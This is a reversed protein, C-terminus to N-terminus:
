QTPQLQEALRSRLRDGLLRFVTQIDAFTTNPHNNYGQLRHQFDARSTAIEDIVFRAEQMVAGRHEFHGDKVEETAKKLACYLSFTKAVTPCGNNCAKIRCLRTDARNWKEPRDLIQQARQVIRLDEPTAPVKVNSDDDPSIIQGQPRQAQANMLSILIAFAVFAGTMRGIKKIVEPM